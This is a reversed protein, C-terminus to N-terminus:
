SHMPSVNEPQGPFLTHLMACAPCCLDPPNLCRTAYLAAISCAHMRCRRSCLPYTLPTCPARGPRGAPCPASSCGSPLRCRHVIRTLKTSQRTRIAAQASFLGPHKARLKRNGKDTGCHVCRMAAQASFSLSEPITHGQRGWLAHWQHGDSCFYFTVRSAKYECTDDRMVRAPLCSRSAGINGPAAGVAIMVSARSAAVIPWSRLLRAQLGAVISAIRM